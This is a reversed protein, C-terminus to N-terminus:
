FKKIHFTKLMLLFNKFVDYGDEFLIMTSYDIMISIRNFRLFPRDRLSTLVFGLVFLGQRFYVFCYTCDHFDGM